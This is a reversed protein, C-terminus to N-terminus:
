DGNGETLRRDVDQASQKDHTCWSFICVCTVMFTVIVILMQIFIIHFLILLKLYWFFAM